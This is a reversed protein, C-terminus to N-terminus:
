IESEWMRNLSVFTNAKSFVAALVLTMTCCVVLLVPSQIWVRQDSSMRALSSKYGGPATAILLIVATPGFFLLIINLALTGGRSM